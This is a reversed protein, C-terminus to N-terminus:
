AAASEDKELQDIRGQLVQAIGGAAKLAGALNAGPSLAAGVLQSRLDSLSPMKSLAVAGEADFVEGEMVAGKVELPLTKAKDVLLKAVDVLSDGGWALACSGELLPGVPNLPLDTFARRALSNKVLMMRVNSQALEGRLANAQNGDLGTPDIVLAADVDKFKASLEDCILQKIRKSM